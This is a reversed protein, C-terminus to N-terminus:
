IKVSNLLQALRPATVQLSYNAEVIKRGAIGFAERLEASDCLMMLSTEWDNMSSALFGNVNNQVITSNVGVHSAVVPKGCAMYQILKYGCKGREFAEDPLPMIGIDFQQIENVEDAEFWSRVEVPFDNLQKVNAGVAVIRVHYMDVLKRLVPALVKLYRATNPTGIWGITIKSTILKKTPIFYRSVDVVTPIEEIRKAGAQEARGALYNNGVIVLNSRRMVRDIKKGLIFRIIFWRHQDYKHFLADDYDTVLSFSSPLFRLEIWSPLWPLMEKEVWVIDFNKSRLIWKFRSLYSRIVSFISVKGHYLATVYDDGFLPAVIVEFGHKTLYQLYQYSRLRSSAGLNGYRSLLLIRV